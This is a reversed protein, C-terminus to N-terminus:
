DDDDDDDSSCDRCGRCRCGRCENNDDDDDSSSDNSDNAYVISVLSLAVRWEHPLTLYPRVVKVMQESGIKSRYIMVVDCDTDDNTTIASRSM